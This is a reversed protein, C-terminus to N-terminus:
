GRSESPGCMGLTERPGNKQASNQHAKVFRPFFQHRCAWGPRIQPKFDFGPGTKGDHPLCPPTKRLCLLKDKKQQKLGKPQKHSARGRPVRLFFGNSRNPPSEPEQRHHRARMNQSIMKWGSIPVKSRLGPPNGGGNRNM